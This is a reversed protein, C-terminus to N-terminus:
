NKNDRDRRHGVLTVQFNNQLLTNIEATAATVAPSNQISEALTVDTQINQLNTPITGRPIVFIQNTGEQQVFM